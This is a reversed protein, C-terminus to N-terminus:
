ICHRRKCVIVTLNDPQEKYLVYMWQPLSSNSFTTPFSGFLDLNLSLMKNKNLCQKAIIKWFFRM